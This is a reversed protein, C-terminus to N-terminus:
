TTSQHEESTSTIYLTIVNFHSTFLAEDCESNAQIGNYNSHYTSKRRLMQRLTMVNFMQLPAGPVVVAARAIHITFALL